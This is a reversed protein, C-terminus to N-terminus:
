KPLCRIELTVIYGSGGPFLSIRYIAKQKDETGNEFFWTNGYVKDGTMNTESRTQLPKPYAALVAERLDLARQDARLRTKSSEFYYRAFPTNGNIPFIIRASDSLLLPLKAKYEKAFEPYTAPLEKGKNRSFSDRADATIQRLENYFASGAYENQASVPAVAVLCLLVLWSKMHRIYQNKRASGQPFNSKSPCEETSM